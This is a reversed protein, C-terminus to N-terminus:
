GSGAGCCRKFKKGSGCPCPENRGAPAARKARPVSGERYFWRGGERRFLSREHHLSVEGEVSYRAIFEVVGETADGQGGETAIVSLGLWRSRKAWAAAQARDFTNRTQPDHSQELYDIRGLVYAVYRSRMLEEASQASREGALLPLCCTATEGSKGCICSM